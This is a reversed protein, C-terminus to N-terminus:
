QHSLEQTAIQLRAAVKEIMSLKFPQFVDVLYAVPKIRAQTIREISDATVSIPPPSSQPSVNQSARKGCLNSNLNIPERGRLGFVTNIKLPVGKVLTFTVDEGMNSPGSPYVLLM